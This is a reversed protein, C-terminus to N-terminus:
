ENLGGLDLVGGGAAVLENALPQHLFSGDRQYIWTKTVLDYDFRLPGSFPSSMWIQKNPGQKNIVYTGHDDGLSITVVGAEANFDFDQFSSSEGWTEVRDQLNNLMEDAARHFVLETPATSFSCVPSHAITNDARNNSNSFARDSFLSGQKAVGAVLSGKGVHHMQQSWPALNKPLASICSSPSAVRATERLSVRTLEPLVRTVRRLSMTPVLQPNQPAPSRSVSLFVDAKKHRFKEDM